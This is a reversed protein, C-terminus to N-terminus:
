EMVGQGKIHKAHIPGPLGKALIDAVHEHTRIYHIQLM